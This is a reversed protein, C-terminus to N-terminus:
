PVEQPVEAGEQLLKWVVSDHLANYSADIINPSVGVTTWRRGNRDASEIMVRTVARTGAQPTLIRVKYDVLRMDELQPYIPVLAKRVAMDLANVPGNGNAVEFKAQGGVELNEDVSLAAFVRRDEPVYGLGASCIRHPSWRTIDDGDFRVYGTQARVLGM